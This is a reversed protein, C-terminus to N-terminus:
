FRLYILTEALTSYTQSEGARRRLAKPRTKCLVRLLSEPRAAKDQVKHANRPM